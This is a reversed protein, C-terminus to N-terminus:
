ASRDALAVALRRRYDIFAKNKNFTLAGMLEGERRGEIVLRWREGDEEVVEASTAQGYLGASKIKVGYQDSWFSPVPAFPTREGEPVLLNAAAVEAMEGANTWHEVSVPGPAHPHPWAAVDGVAVIADGGAAVCYRDCLVSGMHLELGSDYLWETNPLSGLALLVLEAEVREGGHLCVAEVRDTGAFGEVSAGLRLTVGHGEHLRAAWAGAEPGLAPMPLPGMEILTVELGRQRLTAAVECGVFGAGVIAVRPEAEVADRLAIADDLTRLTFFGALDPLEGPWPRARRGTAIVLGDYSLEDNGALAVARRETDLATASQGLAWTVDLDPSKLACESPEMAGALVLKSLPPRTYPRHEEDGVVTLEGDFGADRLREASRLGALGAGVM